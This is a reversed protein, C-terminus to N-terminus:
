LDAYRKAKSFNMEFHLSSNDILVAALGMKKAQNIIELGIGGSIITKDLPYDIQELIKWNFSNYLGEASTDYFIVENAYSNILCMIEPNFPIFVNEESCFLEFTATKDCYRFPLVCQVAQRGFQKIAYELLPENGNIFASSLCIREIPLNSVKELDYISRLGGGFSIPTSCMLSQKLIDNQLIGDGISEPGRTVNIVAVEDCELESLADLCRKLNGLPRYIKWSESQICHLGRLLLISGIRM